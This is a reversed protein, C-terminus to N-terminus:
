EKFNIKGDEDVSNIFIFVQYPIHFRKLVDEYQCLTKDDLGSVGWEGVVISYHNKKSVKKPKLM